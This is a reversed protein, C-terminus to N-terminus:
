RSHTLPIEDTARTELIINELEDPGLYYRRIRKKYAEPLRSKELIYRKTALLEADFGRELANLDAVREAKRRQSASLFYGATFELLGWANRQHYDILHGLEHAFWGILVESPLEEPQIYQAIELHNSMQIRYRRRKRHWVSANMIPQARMTYGKLPLQELTVANHHLSPFAAYAELFSERVKADGIGKFQLCNNKLPATLINRFTCSNNGDTYNTFRQLAWM